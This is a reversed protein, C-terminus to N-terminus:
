AINFTMDADTVTMDDPSATRGELFIRIGEFRSLNVLDSIQSSQATTNSVTVNSGRAGNTEVFTTSTKILQLSANQASGTKAISAWGNVILSVDQIGIYIVWGSPSVGTEHCYYNDPTGDDTFAVVSGGSTLSLQFTTDTKNVIFYNQKDVLEAPLGGDEVLFIIDGDNMLHNFPADSLVNNVSTITNTTNDFTCFDQFCLREETTGDSWTANIPVAVDVTVLDTV